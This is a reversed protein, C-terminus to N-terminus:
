KQDKFVYLLQETAFWNNPFCRVFGLDVRSPECAAKFKNAAEKAIM